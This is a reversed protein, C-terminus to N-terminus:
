AATSLRCLLHEWQRQPLSVFNAEGASEVYIASAWLHKRVMVHMVIIAKNSGADIM